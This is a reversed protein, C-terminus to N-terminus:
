DFMCLWKMNILLLIQLVIMQAKIYWLQNEGHLIKLAIFINCKANVFIDESKLESEQYCFM